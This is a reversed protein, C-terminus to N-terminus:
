RLNDSVPKPKRKGSFTLEPVCLVLELLLEVFVVVVVIGVEVRITKGFWLIEYNM